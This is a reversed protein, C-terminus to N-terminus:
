QGLSNITPPPDSLDIDLPFQLKCGIVPLSCFTNARNITISNWAFRTTNTCNVYVLAYGCEEVVIKMVHNLFRHFRKVGVAEHIKKAVAHFCLNLVKCMDAFSRCFSMEANIVVSLCLGSKLLIGEYLDLSSPITRYEPLRLGGCVSDYWVQQHAHIFLWRPGLNKWPGTTLVLLPLCPPSQGHICLAQSSSVILM